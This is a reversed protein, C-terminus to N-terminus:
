PCLSEVVSSITKALVTNRRVVKDNAIARQVAAEEGVLWVHERARTVATYLLNRQLMRGQSRVVPMVITDFESGQSKHATVCYALRLKDPVSGIPFEVESDVGEGHVRVLLHDSGIKVLKGVDGNYVDLEYDNKVVMLRDGLRFNLGHGNWEPPGKPNLADRLRENLSDVGVEGAYKPSLVQFNADKSKLKTALQVIFDAIKEEDRIRVLKFESPLRPNPLDLMEGRNIKHSNSVIDGKEDQRYIQTLKIHPVSRCSVLQQLVNGPGVSPLQADDGVLVLMTDSRLASLLRYFLEQDMMSVEDVIAADVLFRNNQNHGWSSGDYRLTRHVTAAPHGTVAALRKAAVGTPAMLVFSTRAEEFLRVLARLATTKGTGPLGTLVLVRHEALSSVAERQAESLTIRNSREYEELFPKLDVEIPSPKLLEGFMKASTREYEYFEPLYVGTGSDVVVVRRGELEAVVRAYTDSACDDLDPGATSNRDLLETVHQSIDGRRLYLHGDLAAAQLAWLVLGELRCPANRDFGLYKALLDVKSFDYGSIEMLRYPNKKIVTGAELGFRAMASAVEASKLGGSRLLVTVDRTSLAVKWSLLAPGIGDKKVKSLVESAKHTLAEFVESGYEQVVAQAPGIGFDQICLSLFHVRENDNRAWPEWSSVHFQRGYKPHTRWTGIVKIPM